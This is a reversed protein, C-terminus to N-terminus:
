KKHKMGLVNKFQFLSFDLVKKQFLTVYLRNQIPISNVNDFRKRQRGGELDTKTNMVLM